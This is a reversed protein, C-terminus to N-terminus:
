LPELADFVDEIRRAIFYMAGAQIAKDRFIVQDPDLNTSPRKTECYLARGGKLVGHIDPSGKFGFRVYFGKLRAAGTNMRHVFAVKPHRELAHMVNTLVDSELPESKLLFGGM